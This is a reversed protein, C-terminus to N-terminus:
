CASANRQAVISLKQLHALSGSDLSRKVRYRNSDGEMTGRCLVGNLVVSVLRKGEFYLSRKGTCGANPSGFTQM